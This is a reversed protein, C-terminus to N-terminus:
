SHIDDVTDAHRGLLARDRDRRDAELQEGATLRPQPLAAVAKRIEALAARAEEPTMRPRAAPADTALELALRAILQGRQERPLQHALDIVQDLTPTTMPTGGQTAARSRTAQLEDAGSLGERAVSRTAVCLVRFPSNSGNYARGRPADIATHPLEM